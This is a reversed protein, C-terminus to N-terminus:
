VSRKAKPLGMPTLNTDQKPITKRIRIQSVKRLSGNSKGVLKNASATDQLSCDLRTMILLNNLRSVRDWYIM